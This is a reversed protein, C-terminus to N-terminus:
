PMGEPDRAGNSNTKAPAQIPEPAIGLEIVCPRAYGDRMSEDSPM